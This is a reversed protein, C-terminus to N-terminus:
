NEQAESLHNNDYKNICNKLYIYQNEKHIQEDIYNKM